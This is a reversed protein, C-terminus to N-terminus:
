KRMMILPDIPQNNIRIEFHLHPGTSNGTSGVEGILDGSNVNDGKQVNLKSLHAYRTEKEGNKIIVLNGYGESEGSFTVVGSMASKVPTGETAGIDIGEHLQYKNTIPNRRMGFKSTINGEVPNEFSNQFKVVSGINRNLNSLNTLQNIKDNDGEEVYKNLQKEIIDSIKLTGRNAIEKSYENDLMSSFIEEGFGGNVLGEKPVSQRMVKLLENIIVSEFDKAVKKLQEKTELSNNNISLNNVKM